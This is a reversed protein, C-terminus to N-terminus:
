IFIFLYQLIREKTQDFATSLLQDELRGLLEAAREVTLEHHVGDARRLALDELARPQRLRQGGSARWATLGVARKHSKIFCKLM